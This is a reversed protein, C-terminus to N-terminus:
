ASRSRTKATEDSLMELWRAVRGPGGGQTLGEAVAPDLMRARELMAAWQEAEPWRRTVIAAGLAALREAKAVQEGFPRNEPICIFPRRHALVASVLGDGAAGVVIGARAIMADANDVWGRLELNPPIDAPVTAPGIVRWIRDPVARAAAAWWAGDSPGGGRGVVGLVVHEDIPADAVTDVIQPAYFTKRRIASPTREADLDAHFPALLAAAGRFADCHPRDFRRGSLRVYVTPVSALRALMAVEVSVDIVLLAPRSRAIWDSIMAVRQRLGEHHIPAYHLSSPRECGDRGDFDASGLRDDPLDIAPVPGTRGALGTGLLTIPARSSEAIAIARQRHGDGHHHVYYGIPRTM